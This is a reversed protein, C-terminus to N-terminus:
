TSSKSYEHTTGDIEGIWARKGQGPLGPLETYYAQLVRVCRGCISDSAIMRKLRVTADDPIDMGCLTLSCYPEMRATHQVHCKKTQLSVFRLTEDLLTVVKM